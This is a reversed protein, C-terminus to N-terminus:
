DPNEYESYSESQHNPVLTDAEIGETVACQSCPHKKTGTNHMSGETWYTM